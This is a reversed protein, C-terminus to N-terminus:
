MIELSLVTQSDSDGRYIGKLELRTDQKGM